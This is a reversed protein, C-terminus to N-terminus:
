GCPRYYARTDSEYVLRVTPEWGPAEVPAQMAGLLLACLVLIPLLIRMGSKLIARSRVRRFPAVPRPPRPAPRFVFLLRLM